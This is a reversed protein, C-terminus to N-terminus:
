NNLLLIVSPSISSTWPQRDVRAHDFSDAARADDNIGNPRGVRKTAKWVALSLRDMRRDAQRAGYCREQDRVVTFTWPQQNVANSAHIAADILAGITREDVAEPTYESVRVAVAIAANFDM